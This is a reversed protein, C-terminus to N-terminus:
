APLRALNARNHAIADAEDFFLVAEKAKAIKFINHINKETQGVYMNQVQDYRVVLLKKQLTNALVNAALTKGTGPPGVLLVGKPMRAGLRSYEEPSKLFDVIEILENKCEDVGAVDDFTVRTETEM